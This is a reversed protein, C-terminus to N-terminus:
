LRIKKCAIKGAINIEPADLEEYDCVVFDYVPSGLSGGSLYYRGGVKEGGTKTIYKYCYKATNIRANEGSLHILTSFGFPYDLINYIERGSKDCLLNGNHPNTARELKVASSNILGHFHVSKKDSHFEPVLVYTLSNRRVRNDLWTGLKKIIVSYDDRAIKESDLTLTVFSDFCVTSMLIDFLKNKARSYSKRRNELNQSVNEEFFDYNCPKAKKRKKYTAEWGSAKFTNKNFCLLEYPKFIGNEDPLYKIRGNSSIDDFALKKFIDNMAFSNKVSYLLMCDLILFHLPTFEAASGYM